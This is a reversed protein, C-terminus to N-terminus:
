TSDQHPDASGSRAFALRGSQKQLQTVPCDQHELLLSKLDAVETRLSAIEAQQRLLGGQLEENRLELSSIWEKKKSRCRRAAERNRELFKVRKDEPDDESSSQRPRRLKGGTTSGVCHESYQLLQQQLPQPSGSFAPQIQMGGSSSVGSVASERQLAEKLKQKALSIGISSSSGGGSAEGKGACGSGGGTSGGGALAVMDCSNILTSASASPSALAASPAAAATTAMQSPALKDIASPPLQTKAPAGGSGLDFMAQPPLIAAPLSIPVTQGNPMHLLLQMTCSAAPMTAAAVAVAGGSVPHGAVAAGPQGGSGASASQVSLLSAAASAAECSAGTGAACADVLRGAPSGVPTSGCSRSTGSAAVAHHTSRLIGGRSDLQRLQAGVSAALGTPAVSPAPKKPAPVRACDESVVSVADEDDADGSLAQADDVLCDDTHLDMFLDAPAGPGTATYTGAAHPLHSTNVITPTAAAHLAAMAGDDHSADESLLQPLQAPELEAVAAVAAAAMDDEHCVISGISPTSVTDAPGPVLLPQECSNVRKFSEDFPNLPFLSECDKLFQSPTPTQDLSMPFAFVNDHKRRHVALRDETTFGQRCSPVPCVFPKDDGLRVAMETLSCWFVGPLDPHGSARCCCAFRSLGAPATRQHEFAPAARIWHVAM